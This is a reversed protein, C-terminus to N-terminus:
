RFAIRVRDNRPGHELEAVGMLDLVYEKRLGM